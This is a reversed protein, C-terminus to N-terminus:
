MFIARSISFSVSSASESLGETWSRTLRAQNGGPLLASYCFDKYVMPKAFNDCAMSNAVDEDYKRTRLAIRM